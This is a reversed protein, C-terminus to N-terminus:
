VQIGFVEAHEALFDYAKQYHIYHETTNPDAMKEQFVETLTKGSKLVLDLMGIPYITGGVYTDYISEMETWTIEKNM